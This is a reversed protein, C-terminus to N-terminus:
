NIIELEYGTRQIRSLHMKTTPISQNYRRYYVLTVNYSIEYLESLVRVIPNFHKRRKM